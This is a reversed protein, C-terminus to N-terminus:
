ILALLKYKFMSAITIMNLAAYCNKAISDCSYQSFFFLNAQWDSSKFYYNANATTHM